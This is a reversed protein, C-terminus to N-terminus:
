TSADALPGLLDLAPDERRPGGEGGLRLAAIELFRGIRQPRGELAVTVPDDVRLGEAAELVLGLDEHRGLAVVIPDPKRMGELDGLDGPRGRAGELQVLVEGLRDREAVVEPVRREPMQALLGQGREQVTGEAVVLLAQPHDLDQLVLPTAEVEGPFDAVPDDVM